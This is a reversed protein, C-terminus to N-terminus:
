RSSSSQCPCASSASASAARHAWAPRSRFGCSYIALALAATLAPAVLWGGAMAPLATDASLVAAGPPRGFPDQASAIGWDQVKSVTGSRVESMARCTWRVEIWLMYRFQLM